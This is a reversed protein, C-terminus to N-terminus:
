LPSAVRGPCLKSTGEGTTHVVQRGNGSKGGREVDPFADQSRLLEAAPQLLQALLIWASHQGPPRLIPSRSEPLHRSATANPGKPEGSVDALFPRRMDAELTASASPQLGVWAKEANGVEYGLVATEASSPSRESAAFISRWQAAAFVAAVVATSADVATRSKKQQQHIAAAIPQATDHTPAPRHPAPSVSMSRDRAELLHAPRGGLPARDGERPRALAATVPADGPKRPLLLEGCQVERSAAGHCDAYCRNPYQQGTAADCVPEWLRRCACGGRWLVPAVVTRGAATSYFDLLPLGASPFSIAAGSERTNGDGADSTSKNSARSGSNSMANDQDM